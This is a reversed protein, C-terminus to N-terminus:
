FCSQIFNHAISVDSAKLCQTVEMRLPGSVVSATYPDSLFTAANGVLGM